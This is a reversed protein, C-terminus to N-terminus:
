RALRHTLKMATRAIPVAANMLIPLAVLWPIVPLNVKAWVPFILAFIVAVAAAWVLSMTLQSDPRKWEFFARLLLAPATLYALTLALAPQSTSLSCSLLGALTSAAFLALSIAQPSNKMNRSQTQQTVHERLASLGLDPLAKFLVPLVSKGQGCKLRARCQDRFLQTMLAGYEERHVRPYLWLLKQYIAVAQNLHHDPRNM